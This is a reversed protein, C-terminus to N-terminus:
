VGRMLIVEIGEQVANPGLEHILITIGENLLNTCGATETDWFKGPPYGGSGHLRITSWWEKMKNPVQWSIIFKAVGMANLEHGPPLCGPPLDPRSKRINETPCWWPDKEIATVKGRVVGYSLFSPDPTVVAYGFVPVASLGSKYYYELKKTSYDVFISHVATAPLPPIIDPDFVGGVIEQSGDSAVTVTFDGYQYVEAAQANNCASLGLAVMLAILSRALYKFVDPFIINIFVTILAVALLNTKMKESVKM